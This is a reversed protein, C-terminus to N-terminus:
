PISENMRLSWTGHSLPSLIMGLLDASVDERVKLGIDAGLRESSVRLATFAAKSAIDVHRASVSVLLSFLKSCTMSFIPSAARARPHGSCTTSALRACIWLM